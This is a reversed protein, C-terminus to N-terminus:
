RHGNIVRFYDDILGLQDRENPTKGETEHEQIPCPAPWELPIPNPSKNILQSPLTTQFSHGM